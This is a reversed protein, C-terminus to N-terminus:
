KRIYIMRYFVASLPPLHLSASQPYGDCSINETRSRSLSTGGGGFEVRDSSFVPNLICRYPVGIRYEWREVPCFNLVALIEEGNRAIRRCALVGNDRDDVKIWQFGNWDSDNEWLPPHSLYFRNLSKIYDKMQRHRDYSLLFWDLEKQYDWEIFHGFENGMFNLKKGPHVMMYGLMVRLNAFKADYEGPMRGILSRKGHVVEDHSFPLIYNENFAYTM